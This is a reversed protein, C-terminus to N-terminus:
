PPLPVGNDIKVKYDEVKAAFDPGQTSGNYASIAADWSGTKNKMEMLYLAAGLIQGQVSNWTLGGLLDPYELQLRQFDGETLQMVGGPATTPNINHASTEGAMLAELLNLPVGTKESANTLADLLTKIIDEPTLGQYGGNQSPSNSDAVAM